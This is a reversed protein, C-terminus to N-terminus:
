ERFVTVRYWKLKEYENPNTKGIEFYDYESVGKKIKTNIFEKLNM